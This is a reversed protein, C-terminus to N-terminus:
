AEYQSPIVITFQTGKKEVSQVAISGQHLQVIERVFNLGLGYGKVNKTDNNPVRFFKDFIKEKYVVPIGIGNDKVVIICTGEEQLVCIDIEPQVKDNYKVANDLLNQIVGTFYMKDINLLLKDPEINLRIIANKLKRLPEFGNIAEGFFDHASQIDPHVVIEKREFAATRLVNEVMDTLRRLEIQAAYYHEAISYNNNDDMMLDLAVSISSLPTKLEHTVNNMFDSKMDAMRKQKYFINVLYIFSGSAIIILLGSVFSIWGMRKLIYLDTDYFAAQLMESSDNLSIYYGKTKYISKRFLASDGTTYLIKGEKTLLALEFSLDSRQKALESFLVAKYKVLFAAANTPSNVLLSNHGVPIKKTAEYAGTNQHLGSSDTGSIGIQPFSDNASMRMEMKINGNNGKFINGVTSIFIDSFGAPLQMRGDSASAKIDDLLMITMTEKMATEAQAHLKKEQQSYSQWLWIIQLIIIGLLTAGTVLTLFPLKNRMM